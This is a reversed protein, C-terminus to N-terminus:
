IADHAFAKEVPAGRVECRVVHRAAAHAMAALTARDHPRRAARLDPSGDSYSAYPRYQQLAYHRAGRIRSAISVIDDVDFVPLVTTRFEYPTGSAMVAEISADIDAQLVSRGCVEDYKARPAKVDMAVYDLCGSTLLSRLMHPRTGNTDLKVLYGRARVADILDPLGLHLMPEGGTFVVGDLLGQRSELWELFASHALGPADSPMRLLDRNQCYYCDLNCGPAFVVAAIHGPWDVFSCRELGAIVM